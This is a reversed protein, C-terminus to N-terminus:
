CNACGHWRGLAGLLSKALAVFLPRDVTGGLRGHLGLNALHAFGNGSAVERGGRRFEVLSRAFEVAGTGLSHNVRVDGRTGLRTQRCHELLGLSGLWGGLHTPYTSGALWLGLRVSEFFPRGLKAM